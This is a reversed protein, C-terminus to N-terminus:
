WDGYETFDKEFEMFSVKLITGMSTDTFSYTPNTAIAGTWPLGADWRSQVFYNPLPKDKYYEKQRKIIAPYVEENLWKDIRKQDEKPVLFTLEKKM